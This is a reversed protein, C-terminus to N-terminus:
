PKGQKLNTELAGSTNEGFGMYKINDKLYQFNQKNMINVKQNNFLQDILEEMPKSKWSGLLNIVRKMRPTLIRYDLMWRCIMWRWCIKM